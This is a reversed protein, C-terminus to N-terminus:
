GHEPIPMLTAACLSLSSSMSLRLPLEPQSADWYYVAKLRQFRTVFYLGPGKAGPPRLQVFGLHYGRGCSVTNQTEPVTLSTFGTLGIGIRRLVCYARKTETRGWWIEDPKRSVLSPCPPGVFGSLSASASDMLCFDNKDIARCIHVALPTPFM